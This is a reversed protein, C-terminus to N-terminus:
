GPGRGERLHPLTQTKWGSGTLLPGWDFNYGRVLCNLGLVRFWFWDAFYFDHKLWSLVSTSLCVLYSCFRKDIRRHIFSHSYVRVEPPKHSTGAATSPWASTSSSSPSAGAWAAAGPCVWGTWTRRGRGAGWWPSTSFTVSETCFVLLTHYM